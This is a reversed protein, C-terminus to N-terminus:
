KESNLTKLVDLASQIREKKRPDTEKDSLRQLRFQTVEQGEIAQCISVCKGLIKPNDTQTIKDLLAPITTIGINCLASTVPHQNIEFAEDNEKTIPAFMIFTHPPINAEWELQNILSSVAESVRYKGLVVIADAKMENSNTSDLIAM